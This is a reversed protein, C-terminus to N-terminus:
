YLTFCESFLRMQASQQKHGCCCADPRPRLKAAETPKRPFGQQEPWESRCLEATRYPLLGVASGHTPGLAGCSVQDRDAHEEMLHRRPHVTSWLYASPHREELCWHHCTWRTQYRINCVSLTLARLQGKVGGGLLARNVGAKRMQLMVM